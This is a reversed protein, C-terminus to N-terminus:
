SHPLPRQNNLARWGRAIRYIAWIGILFYAPKQLPLGIFNLPWLLTAAVFLALAIWFSERQWRFHSDLWTDRVVDRRTYNMIVAVISPIGFVFATVIFKASVVGIAISAAHLAYMIQTYGVQRPDVAVTTRAFPSDDM